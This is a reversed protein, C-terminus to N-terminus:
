KNRPCYYQENAKISIACKYGKEPEKCLYYEKSHKKKKCKKQDYQMLRGLPPLERTDEELVKEELVGTKTNSM